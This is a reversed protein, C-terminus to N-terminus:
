YPLLLHKQGMTKAQQGCSATTVPLPVTSPEQHWKSSDKGAKIVGAWVGTAEEVRSVAQTRLRSRKSGTTRGMGEQVLSWWRAAGQHRACTRGSDATTELAREAALLLGLSGNGM